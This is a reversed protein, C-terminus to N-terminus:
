ESNVQSWLYLKNPWPGPGTHYSLGGALLCKMLLPVLTM